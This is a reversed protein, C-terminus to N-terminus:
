DELSGFIVSVIVLPELSVECDQSIIQNTQKYNFLGQLIDEVQIRHAKVVLVLEEILKRPGVESLELLGVELQHCYILLPAILSKLDLGIM